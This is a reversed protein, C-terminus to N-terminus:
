EDAADSTYLLCVEAEVLGPTVMVRVSIFAQQHFNQAAIRGQEHPAIFHLACPAPDIPDNGAPSFPLRLNFAVYRAGPPWRGREQEQIAVPPCPVWGISPTIPSFCVCNTSNSDPLARGEPGVASYLQLNQCPSGVATVSRPM